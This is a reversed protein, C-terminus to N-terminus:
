ADTSHYVNSLGHAKIKDDLLRKVSDRISTQTERCCLIRLQRAAGLTLLASAFSHSKAGGRGGWAGKYRAPQFLYDFTQPIQIRVTRDNTEAVPPTEPGHTRKPTARKKPPRAPKAKKRSPM